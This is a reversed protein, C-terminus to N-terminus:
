KCVWHGWGGGRGYLLYAAAAINAEPDYISAGPFGAGAAREAWASPLHQFLGGAGSSPNRANPDGNSECAMVRIARDVDGPEFYKEVLPRWGEAGPGTPVQLSKLEEVVDMPIEPMQAPPELDLARALFSAMQARTVPDEPCFRGDGCGHTIGAATIAAIDQEHVNGDDDHYPDGEAPSLGLARVLLSAMQGRTVPEDPCYQGAGCGATIDAAAIAAIDEAFRSRSTDSFAAADAPPLELARNLFAAMEARTVDDDPCFLWEGCGTTIGAAHLSAVDLEHISGDVDAFPGRGDPENAAAGLAPATIFMLAGAVALVWSTKTKM